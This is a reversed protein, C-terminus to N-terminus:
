KRFDELNLCTEVNLIKLNHTAMLVIGGEKIRIKIVNELLTQSLNDLNTEPEDLLWLHTRYLLLKSLEVRRKLGASLLSVKIDLIDNLVFYKIAPKILEEEGKLQCWFKLNELVTLNEQLANKHGIYCINQRFLLINEFIDIKNWSIKYTDCEILGLIMKLLSTKGSGNKGKITLLSGPLLSFSLDSFIHGINNSLSLNQCTLM